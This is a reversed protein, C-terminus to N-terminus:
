WGSDRYAAAMREAVMALERALAHPELVRVNAGFGLLWWRLEQTDQVTATLEVGEETEELEQDESLAVEYLHFAAEPTFRARLHLDASSEPYRFGGEAIYGDLDFGEPWHVPEDLLWAEELRHVALQVPNTYNWLTAM